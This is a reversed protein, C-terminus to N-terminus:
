PDQQGGEGPMRMETYGAPVVFLTDSVSAPEIKSVEWQPIDKGDAVKVAKLVFYGDEFQQHAEPKDPAPIRGSLDLDIFGLATTVCYRIDKAHFGNPDLIQYYKCPYGAVTESQGTAVYKVGSGAAAAVTSAQESPMVMYMKRGHMEMLRLFRGNRDVIYTVSGEGNRALQTRVQPNKVWITMLTTHASNSASLTIIGEFKGQATAHVPLVVIMLATM